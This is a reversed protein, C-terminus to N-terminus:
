VLLIMTLIAFLSTVDGISTIVPGMINNPDYGKKFFYFTLSVTLPIQLITSILAAGLSIILLKWYFVKFILFEFAVALLGLTIGLAFALLFSAIINDRLIKTNKIKPKIIKLFLAATLRSSLSGSINGRMELFGPLLILIGPIIFIKNMFVALLLGAFLSFVLSVSGFGVIERFDRKIFKRFM